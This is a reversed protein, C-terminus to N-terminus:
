TAASQKLINQKERLKIEQMTPAFEYKEKLIKIKEKEASEDHANETNGIKIINESRSKVMKLTPKKHDLNKIRYTIIAPNNNRLLEVTIKDDEKMSIVKKYIKFRNDTSDAAINNINKVIDGPLLGMELGLSDSNLKGIRSGIIQGQKYAAVLDFLEIFEGVNKVYSVFKNPDILYDEDSIKKVIDKMAITKSDAKADEQRVYLIEQQGNSRAIIVKNRLIRIIQSDEIEDNISYNTQKNTRNDMIIAKNKTEDSQVIIGTLTLPLPDLFQPAESEPVYASVPEPPKPMQITVDPKESEKIVPKYTDFLDNKYVISIDLKHIEKKEVHAHTDPEISKRAPIKVKSFFIFCLVTLLMLLLSSNLIWFPQKM